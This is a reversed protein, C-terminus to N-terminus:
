AVVQKVALEFQEGRDKYNKFMDISACAPSLMVTAASVKNESFACLCMDHALKVAGQMSDAHKFMLQSNVVSQGELLRNESTSSRRALKEFMPADKGMAVMGKIPADIFDLLPEISAGKADGGVILIVYEDKEFATLAALTAGVNTAKSDNIWTIDSRHIIQTRHALGKFTCLSTKISDPSLGLLVCTGTVVMVNSINHSGVVNLESSHIFAKGKFMIYQTQQDFWLNLSGESDRQANVWHQQVNAYIDSPMSENFGDICVAHKANAFIKQKIELYENINGHRDLHDESINLLVAVELKLNETLELQFSSLELVIFDLSDDILSLASQGINGGVAVRKGGASLMRGLMDTVTTKGNSGTIGITPTKNFWAFLEIESILLGGKHKYREFCAQKPSIGPSVVVFDFASFDCQQNFAHFSVGNVLDDPEVSAFVSVLASKGLLFNVCARGTVGYGIVAVHRNAVQKM